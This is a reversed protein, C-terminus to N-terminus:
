KLEDYKPLDDHIDYWEPKNKVFLHYEPTINPEEDLVGLSIEMHNPFDKHYYYIPSGCDKCFGRRGRESSEYRRIRKKSNGWDIDEKLCSGYAAGVGGHTKRCQSCHCINASIFPSNITFEVSGCLCSAKMKVGHYICVILPFALFNNSPM